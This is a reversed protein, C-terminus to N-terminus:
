RVKFADDLGVNDSVNNGVGEARDGKVRGPTGRTGDRESLLQVVGAVEADHRYEAISQLVGAALRRLDEVM